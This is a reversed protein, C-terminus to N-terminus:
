KANKLFQKILYNYVYEKNKSAKILNSKVEKNIKKSDEQLYKLYQNLQNKTMSDLYNSLIYVVNPNAIKIKEILLTRSNIDVDPFLSYLQYSTNQNSLFNNPIKKLIYNRTAADNTKFINIIQTADRGFKEKDLQKLAQLQYDKYPSYLFYNNLAESQISELYTKIKRKVEGHVIHWLTHCSYLGGKVVSEKVEKKTAGSVADIRGFVIDPKSVPVEDILDSMKRRKLISNDDLLLKHLKEYDAKEFPDHEFKTLPYTGDIGYGVYNGLLNWYIKIKALKCEGDACVPTEIDSFFLRPEGKNNSLLRVQHSMSTNYTTDLSKILFEFVPEDKTIERWEDTMNFFMPNYDKKSQFGIFILIIIFLPKYM